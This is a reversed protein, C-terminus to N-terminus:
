RVEITRNQVFIGNVTIGITATGRDSPSTRLTATFRGDPGTVGAAPDLTGLTTTMSVAVGPLPPSSRDFGTHVTVTITATDGARISLASQSFEMLGIRPETPTSDGGGKGGGCGTAALALVLLGLGLHALRSPRM